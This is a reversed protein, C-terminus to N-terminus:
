FTERSTKHVWHTISVPGGFLIIFPVVLSVPGAVDDSELGLTRRTM